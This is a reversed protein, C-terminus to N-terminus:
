FFFRKIQATPIKQPPPGRSIRINEFELIGPNYYELITFLKVLLPLFLELEKLSKHEFSCKIEELSYDPSLNPHKHLKVQRMATSVELLNGSSSACTSVNVDQIPKYPTSDLM